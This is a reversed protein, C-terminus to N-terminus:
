PNPTHQVSWTTGNWRGALSTWGIVAGHFSRGVATCATPSSCSVSYLYSVSGPNVTPQINWSAGNWTEALSATAGTIPDYFEGVATCATRSACSVGNLTAQDGLGTPNPTPKIVWKM